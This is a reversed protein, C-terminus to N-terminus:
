QVAVDPVRDAASDRESRYSSEREPAASVLEDGCASNTAGTDACVPECCSGAGDPKCHSALCIEARQDPLRDLLM